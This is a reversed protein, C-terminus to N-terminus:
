EDISVVITTEQNVNADVKQTQLGLQKQLLDLTKTQASTGYLDDGKEVFALEALKLGVREATIAAAAFQEKQLQQIYEQIEKDKLKRFAASNATDYGCNYVNYYAQTANYTKVYEECFAREKATLGKTSAM